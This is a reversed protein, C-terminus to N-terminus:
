LSPLPLCLIKNSCNDLHVTLFTKKKRRTEQKGREQSRSCQQFFIPCIKPWLGIIQSRKSVIKSFYWYIIKKVWMLNINFFQMFGQLLSFGFLVQFWSCNLKFGFMFQFSFTPCDFSEVNFASDLFFSFPYTKKKM